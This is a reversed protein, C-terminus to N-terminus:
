KDTGKETTPPNALLEARLEDFRQRPNADALILANCMTLLANFMWYPRRLHPEVVLALDSSRCEISAEILALADLKADYFAAADAPSLPRPETM